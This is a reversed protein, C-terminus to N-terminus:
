RLMGFTIGAWAGAITKEANVSTFGAVGVGFRDGPVLFMECQLPLGITTFQRTEHSATFSGSQLEKGERVGGVLSLGGALSLLARLQPANGSGLLVPMAAVGYLVGLEYEREQPPSRFVQVQENLVLRATVVHPGQQRSHSIGVSVGYPDGSHAYGAGVTSWLRDPNTFASAVSICSGLALATFAHFGVNHTIM